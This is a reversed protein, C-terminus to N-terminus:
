VTIARDMRGIAEGSGQGTQSDLLNWWAPRCTTCREPSRSTERTRWTRWSQAAAAFRPLDLYWMQGPLPTWMLRTRVRNRVMLNQQLFQQNSEQLSDPLTGSFLM